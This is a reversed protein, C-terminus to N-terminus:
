FLRKTTTPTKKSYFYILDYFRFHLVVFYASNKISDIQIWSNNPKKKKQHWKSKWHWLRFFFFLFFGSCKFGHPKIKKKKEFIVFSKTSAASAPSPKVTIDSTELLFFFPRKIRYLNNYFSFLVALYVHHM